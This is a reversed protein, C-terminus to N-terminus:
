MTLINEIIGGMLGGFLVMIFWNITWMSPLWMFGSYLPHIMLIWINYPCIHKNGQDDKRIWINGMSPSFELYFIYYITIIVSGSIIGIIMQIKFNM